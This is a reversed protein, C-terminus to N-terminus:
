KEKEKKKKLKLIKKKSILSTYSINREEKEGVSILSVNEKHYIEKKKRWEQFAKWNEFYTPDNLDWKAGCKTCQWRSTTREETNVNINLFYAKIYKKSGCNPCETPEEKKM